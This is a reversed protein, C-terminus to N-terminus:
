RSPMIWVSGGLAERMSSVSTLFYGSGYACLMGNMTGSFYLVGGQPNCSFSPSSGIESGHSPALPAPHYFRVISTGGSVDIIYGVNGGAWDMAEVCNGVYINGVAPNTHVTASMMQLRGRALPPLWQPVEGGAIPDCLQTPVYEYRGDERARMDKAGWLLTPEAM